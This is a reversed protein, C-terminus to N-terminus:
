LVSAGLHRTKLILTRSHLSTLLDAQAANPVFPSIMGISDDDDGKILIKYLWGSGLRWEM